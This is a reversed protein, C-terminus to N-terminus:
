REQQFAAIAPLVLMSRRAGRVLKSLTEGGLVRGIFGRNHTGAVILDADLEEACALLSPAPKGYLIKHHIRVKSGDDLWRAVRTLQAAVSAEHDRFWQEPIYDKREWPVVHVLTVVADPAAIDLARRAADISAESFDMAVLIRKPLAELKTDVALVPVQSIRMLRLATENGFLRAAPGHGGLGVVIILPRSEKALTAITTAPNGSRVELSWHKDGLRDLQAQAQSRAEEHLGRKYEMLVAPEVGGWPIPASDVVTLVKVEGQDHLALLRSIAIAADSQPTGDTAILLATRARVSSDEVNTKLRDEVATGTM